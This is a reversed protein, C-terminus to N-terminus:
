DEEKSNNKEFKSLDILNLKWDPHAQNIRPINNNVIEVEKNVRPTLPYKLALKQFNEISDKTSELSNEIFASVLIDSRYASISLHYDESNKVKKELTTIYESAEKSRNTILLLFIKNYGAECYIASPISAEKELLTSIKTYAKNYNQDYIDKEIDALLTWYKVRSNEYNTFSIPTLFDNTIDNGKNILYNNYAKKDESSRTLILMLADNKVTYNLPILEYIPVALSVLLGYQLIYKWQTPLSTLTFSLVLIIAFFIVYSITGGLFMLTPNHDKDDKPTLLLRMELLRSFEWNTKFGKSTKVVNFGLFVLQKVSYGTISGFIIRGLTYFIIGIFLAALVFVIILGTVTIAGKSLQFTYSIGFVYLGLIIIIIWSLDYDLISKKNKNQVSDRIKKSSDDLQKDIDIPNKQNSNNEM